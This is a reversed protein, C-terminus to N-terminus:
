SRSEDRIALAEDFAGTVPLQLDMLTIDPTSRRLKASAERGNYVKGVPLMDSEPLLLTAMGARILQHDDVALVRIPSADASM